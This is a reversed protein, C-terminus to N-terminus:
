IAVKPAAKIMERYIESVSGPVAPHLGEEIMEYTPRKPVIAYGAVDLLAEFEAFLDVMLSDAELALSVTAYDPHDSM